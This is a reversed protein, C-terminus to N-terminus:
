IKGVTQKINCQVFLNYNAESINCKDRRITVLFYKTIEDNVADYAIEIVSLHTSFLQVVLHMWAVCVCM